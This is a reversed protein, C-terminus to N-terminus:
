AEAIIKERLWEFVFAVEKWAKEALRKAYIQDERKMARRAKLWRESVERAGMRVSEFSRGL